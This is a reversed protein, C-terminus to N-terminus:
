PGVCCGAMPMPTPQGHPPGRGSELEQLEPMLTGNEDFLEEPRYSRM